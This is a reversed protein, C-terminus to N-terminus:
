LWLTQNKHNKLLSRLGNLYREAMRHIASCERGGWNKGLGDDNKTFYHDCKHNEDSACPDLDFHFEKDLENFLWQPTEWEDTNSSYLGANMMNM